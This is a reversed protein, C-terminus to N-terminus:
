LNRRTNSDLIMGNEDRVFRISTIHELDNKQTEQLYKMLAGAACVAKRHDDLGLSTLQGM